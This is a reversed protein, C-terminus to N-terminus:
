LELRANTIVQNTKREQHILKLIGKKESTEQDEMEKLVGKTGKYKLKTNFIWGNHVYQKTPEPVLTRCGAPGDKQVTADTM